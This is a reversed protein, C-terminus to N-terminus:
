DIFSLLQTTFSRDPCVYERLFGVFFHTIATQRAPLPTKTFHKLLVRATFVAGIWGVPRGDFNTIFTHVTPHATAETRGSGQLDCDFLSGAIMMKGAPEAQVAPNTLQKTGPLGYAPVPFLYSSGKFDQVNVIVWGRGTLSTPTVRGMM